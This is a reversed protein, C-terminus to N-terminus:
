KQTIWGNLQLHKTSGLHTNFYAPCIIIPNNQNLYAVWWSLSSNALINHKCNKMLEFDESVDNGEVFTVNDMNSFNKKCWAMDDSFFYFKPWEVRSGICVRDM